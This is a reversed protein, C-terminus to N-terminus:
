EKMRFELRLAKELEKLRIEWTSSELAWSRASQGMRQRLDDDSLLQIVAQAIAQPDEQPVVMATEGPRVAEVLGTGETVVAPLGCLAAEVAVIGFGEVEGKHVQRSTLVFLDAMNYYWTLEVQPVVGMFYIQKSVGLRYALEELERQRTPLGILLYIVDPFVKLIEPMALIVLDQAKRESVQGVTLIVRKNNLKLRERLNPNLLGSKYLNEDAGIPIVESHSTHFGNQAALSQSFHSIFIVLRAKAFAQRTFFHDVLSRVSFESGLGCAALPVGTLGSVCAGLWVAQYGIALILNPRNKQTEKLTKYLRDTAERWFPGLRPFPIIGFPQNANFLHVEEQSAHTQVSAVTVQWGQNTLFSAIQYSYRGMGGPGPPFEM